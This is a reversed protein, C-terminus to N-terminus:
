YYAKNVVFSLTSNDEITNKGSAVYIKLLLHIGLLGIVVFIHPVRIIQSTFYTITTITFITKTYKLFPKYGM